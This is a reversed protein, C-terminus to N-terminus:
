ISGGQTLNVLQGNRSFYLSMPVKRADRATAGGKLGEVVARLQRKLCSQSSLRANKGSVAQPAAVAALLTDLKQTSKM